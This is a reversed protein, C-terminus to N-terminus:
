CGGESSLCVIVIAGAVFLGIALGFGVAVLVPAIELTPDDEAELRAKLGDLRPDGVVAPLLENFRQGISQYRDTNGLRTKSELHESVIGYVLTADEPYRQYFRAAWGMLEPIAEPDFGDPQLTM